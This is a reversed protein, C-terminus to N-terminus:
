PYRSWFDGHKKSIVSDRSFGGHRVNGSRDTMAVEHKMVEKNEQAFIYAINAKGHKKVYDAQTSIMKGINCGIMVASTANEKVVKHSEKITRFKWEKQIKNLIDVDTIDVIKGSKFLEIKMEKFKNFLDKYVENDKQTALIRAQPNQADFSKLEAKAKVWGDCRMFTSFIQYEKSESLSAVMVIDEMFLYQMFVIM